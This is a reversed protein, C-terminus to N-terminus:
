LQDMGGCDCTEGKPYSGGCDLCVNESRTPSEKDDTEDVKTGGDTMTKPTATAQASALVLPSQQVVRQHKCFAGRHTAHPCSCGVAHGDEIEVSYIHDSSNEGYSLNRVNVYGVGGQCVAIDFREYNSRQEDVTEQESNAKDTMATKGPLLTRHEM